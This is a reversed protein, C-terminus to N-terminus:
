CIIHQPSHPLLLSQQQHGLSLVRLQACGACRCSVATLVARRSCGQNAQVSRILMKGECKQWRSDLQVCRKLQQEIDVNKNCVPPLLGDGGARKRPTLRPAAQAAPPLLLRSLLGTLARVLPRV